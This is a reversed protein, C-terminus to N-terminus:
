EYKLNNITKKYLNHIEKNIIPNGILIIKNKNTILFVQYMKSKDLKNKIFFSNKTDIIVPYIFDMYKLKDILQNMDLTNVYFLFSVKSKKFENIITKWYLLEYICDECGGNLYIIIKNKQMIPKQMWGSKINFYKLSDILDIHANQFKKVILDNKNEFKNCSLLIIIFTIIFIIYRQIFIIKIIKCM